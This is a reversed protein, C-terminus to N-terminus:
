PYPPCQVSRFTTQHEWWQRTVPVAVSVYITHGPLPEGVAFTGPVYSHGGQRDFLNDYLLTWNNINAYYLTV